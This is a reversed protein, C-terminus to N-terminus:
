AVHDVRRGNPTTEIHAHEGASPPSRRDPHQLDHRGSSVTQVTADLTRMAIVGHRQHTADLRRQLRDGCTPPHCRGHRCLRQRPQAQQVAPQYRLFLSLADAAASQGATTAKNRLQGSAGALLARCCVTSGAPGARRGSPRACVTRRDEVRRGADARDQRLGPRQADILHAPTEIEPRKM